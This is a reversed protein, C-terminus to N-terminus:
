VLQYEDVNILGESTPADCRKKMSITLTPFYSSILLYKLLITRSQVFKAARHMYLAICNFKQLIILHLTSIM